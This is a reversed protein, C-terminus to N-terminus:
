KDACSDVDGWDGWRKRSGISEYSHKIRGYQLLASTLVLAIGIRAVHLEGTSEAQGDRAAPSGPSPYASRYWRRAHPIPYERTSSYTNYVHITAHMSDM